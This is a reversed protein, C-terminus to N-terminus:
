IVGKAHLRQHTLLVGTEFRQLMSSLPFNTPRPARGDLLDHCHVCGYAAREDSAKIGMAHGDALLNSHCLVTTDTTFLCGPFRLTCEEDRASQRIKTTKPRSVKMRTRKLQGTGRAMQSRKMPTAGPKMATRKMPTASPKLSSCIM